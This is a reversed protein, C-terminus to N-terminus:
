YCKNSIKDKKKRKERQKKNNEGILEIKGKKMFFKDPDKDKGNKLKIKLKELKSNKKGKQM